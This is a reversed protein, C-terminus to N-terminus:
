LCHMLHSLCIREGNQAVGGREKEEQRGNEMVWEGGEMRWTQMNSSHLNVVRRNVRERGENGRQREREGKM